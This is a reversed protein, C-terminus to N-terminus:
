NVSDNDSGGQAMMQPKDPDAKKSEPKDTQSPSKDKGEDAQKTTESGKGDRPKFSEYFQSFRSYNKKINVNEPELELAKKYAALAEDFKGVSEYAIALNNMVRANGPDLKQAQEFRFLAENWLGREAMDVGFKLQQEASATVPKSNGGACGALAVLLVPLLLWASTWRLRRHADVFPTLDLGSFLKRRSPSTQKEM